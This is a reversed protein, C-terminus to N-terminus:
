KRIPISRIVERIMESDIRYTFTQGVPQIVNLVIIFITVTLLQLLVVLGFGLMQYFCLVLILVLDVCLIMIGLSVEGQFLSYLAARTLFLCAVMTLIVHLVEVLFLVQTKLWELRDKIRKRELVDEELTFLPYAIVCFYKPILIVLSLIEWALSAHYLLFYCGAEWALFVTAFIQWFSRNLIKKNFAFGFFPVFASYKLLIDIISRLSLPLDFFYSYIFTVGLLVLAYIRYFTFDITRMPLFALSWLRVPPRMM